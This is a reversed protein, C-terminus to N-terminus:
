ALESLIQRWLLFNAVLSVAAFGISWGTRGRWATLFAPVTLAGFLVTMPVIAVMEMGGGQPTTSTIIYYIAYVWFVGLAAAVLLLAIRAVPNPPPAGHTPTM